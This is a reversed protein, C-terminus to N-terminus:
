SDRVLNAVNEIRLFTPHMAPGFWQVAAHGFPGLRSLSLGHTSQPAGDASTVLM